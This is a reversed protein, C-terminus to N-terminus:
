VCIRGCKAQQYIQVAFHPAFASCVYGAVLLPMSSSWPEKPSKHRAILCCKNAIVNVPSLYCKTLVPWYKKWWFINKINFSKRKEWENQSFNPHIEADFENQKIEFLGVPRPSEGVVKSMLYKLQVMCASAYHLVMSTHTAQLVPVVYVCVCVCASGATFADSHFMNHKDAHVSNTPHKAEFKCLAAQFASWGVARM